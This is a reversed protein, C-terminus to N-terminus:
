HEMITCPKACYFLKQKTNATFDCLKYSIFSWKQNTISKSVHIKVYFNSFWQKGFWILAFCEWAEITDHKYGVNRYIVFILINLIDIFIIGFISNVFFQMDTVGRAFVLGSSNNWLNHAFRHQFVYLSLSM